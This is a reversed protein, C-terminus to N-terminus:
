PTEGTEEIPPLETEGTGADAGEPPSSQEGSTEESGQTAEESSQTTDDAQETEQTAEVEQNEQTETSNDGEVDDGEEGQPNEEPNNEQNEEGGPNDTNESLGPQESPNDTDTSFAPPESPNGTDSPMDPQESPNTSYEELNIQNQNETNLYCSYAQASIGAVMESPKYDDQGFFDAHLKAVDDYLSTPFVYSTENLMGTAVNYPFGESGEIKFSSIRMALKVIDSKSLNTKVQDVGIDIINNIESFKMNKVKEMLKVIVTRMRETRKFDDGVGKRIRGYTVAQAGDLLQLGPETVMRVDSQGIINCTEANFRNLENIEYDEINIELGGAADVIDAVAKFNFVVYNKINLDLAQNLTKISGKMGGYYFSHTVKDYFGADGLLLFTDRYISTLYIEGTEEKISAIIIADARWGELNNMDRSDIGLFLINIFGDVDVCSLEEETYTVAEAKGEVDNVVQLKDLKGSIYVVPLAVILLVTLVSILIVKVRVTKKKPKNGEVKSM